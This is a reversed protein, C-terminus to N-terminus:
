NGAQKYQVVGDVMVWQVATTFELPDGSLAVLDADLGEAIAGVRKEIGLIKAPSITIAELAAKPDLGNRVAFRAQDLLDGESLAFPIDAKHLRAANNAALRTQEQGRPSSPQLRGLVVSTKAEKLEDIIRWAEQGGFMIPVKMGFERSIEMLSLADYHTRSVAFVSHDGNISGRVLDMGKGEGGKNAADLTSRLIWVVGMRNTPQRIYISNPRSRAGNGRAPDTCASLMMGTKDSFIRKKAEGATKVACGIGAFVNDTGPAIHLSTTGSSIAQTFDRDRFNIMNATMLGPTVERTREARQALGAQSYADVLGPMLTDVEITKDGGAVGAGVAQIKGDSVLVAGNEIVDGSVTHLKKAKILVDEANAPIALLALLAVKTIAELRWRSRREHRSSAVVVNQDKM